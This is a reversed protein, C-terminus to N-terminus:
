KPIRSTVHSFKLEGNPLLQYEFISRGRTKENEYDALVWEETVVKITKFRMEGGQTSEKPIMEPHERLQNAIFEEPKAISDFAKGYYVPYATALDGRELLAQLSDSSRKYRSLERSLSDLEMDRDEMDRDGDQCSMLASLTFGFLLTKTVLKINMM